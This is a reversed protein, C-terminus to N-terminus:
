KLIKNLRTREASLKTHSIKAYIQTTRVSNHGLWHSVTELPVGNDLLITVACVHRAIHHHVNKTIGAMKAITKLHQNVKPNSYTPLVKNEILRHPSDAYKEIIAVASDLIPIERREGTKGQDITLYPHTDIVSISDMKLAMADGFRLGTYCSFIFIDRIRDLIARDTLDLRTISDLEEATLYQRNGNPFSLKFNLYPNQLIHGRRIAENLVAKLRAHHKNVTSLVMRDGRDNYPVRKLYDNFRTIFGIDISQIKVGPDRYTNLHNTLHHLTEYYKQITSARIARDDEKVQIFDEFFDLLVVSTKDKGFMRNRIDSATYALHLDDLDNKARYAKERIELLKQNLHSSLRFVEREQDWEESACQLGTTFESKTRDYLIRLYVSIKNGRGKQPMPICRISMTKM